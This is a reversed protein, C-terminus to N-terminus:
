QIYQPTVPYSKWFYQLEKDSSQNQWMLCHLGQHFAANQPVEDPDLVRKPTKQRCLALVHTQAPQFM